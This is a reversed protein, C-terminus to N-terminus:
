GEQLTFSDRDNLFGYKERAKAKADKDLTVIFVDDAEQPELMYGGLYDIVQSHGSHMNGKDDEGVRNVAIVYCMNEIARAPLLTDWALIRQDPWNAPYLLMDYDEVNRVFVPFRLDYCVQLCIKWGKYDVIVKERGPTYEEDEGALTFLHRKNYITTKGGPEVFYMRNYYRSDEKIVLSGTIACNHEAATEKMWTVSKGDPAEAVNHPKMTFGTAFTEPLVILDPKEKISKIKNTFNDRNAQPDEWSLHTQILAIKM